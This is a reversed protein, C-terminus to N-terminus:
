FISLRDMENTLDSLEKTQVLNEEDTQPKFSTKIHNFKRQKVKKKVMTMLDNERNKMFKNFNFLQEHAYVNKDDLLDTSKNKDPYLSTISFINSTPKRM